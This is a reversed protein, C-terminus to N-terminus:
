IDQSCFSSKLHILFCKKDNKLMMLPSETALIQRLGSFAGKFKFLQKESSCKFPSDISFIYNFKNPM